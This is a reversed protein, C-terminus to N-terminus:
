GLEVERGPQTALARENRQANRTEGLRAPTQGTESNRLESM